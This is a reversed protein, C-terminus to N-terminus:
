AIDQHLPFRPFNVKYVINISNCKLNKSRQYNM